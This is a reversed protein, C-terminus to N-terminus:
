LEMAKTGYDDVVMPMLRKQGDGINLKFNKILIKFEDKSM